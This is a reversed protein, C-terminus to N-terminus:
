NSEDGAVEWFGVRNGNVDRLTGRDGISPKDRYESTGVADAITARAQSYRQMADNGFDIEIKLKVTGKRAQRM